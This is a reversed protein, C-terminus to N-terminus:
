EYSYIDLHSLIHICYRSKKEFHPLSTLEGCGSSTSAGGFTQGVMESCKSSICDLSLAGYKTTIREPVCKCSCFISSHNSTSCRPDSLSLLSFRQILVDHGVLICTSRPYKYRSMTFNWDTLYDECNLSIISGQALRPRKRIPSVSHVFDPWYVPMVSSSSVACPTVWTWFEPRTRTPGPFSMSGERM